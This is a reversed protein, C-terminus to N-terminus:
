RMIERMLDAPTTPVCRGEAIEKRAERVEAVLRQRSAETLRRQLIGILEAQEVQSLRDAAELVEGFQLATAMVPSERLVLSVQTQQM